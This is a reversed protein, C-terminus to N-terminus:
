RVLTFREQELPVHTGCVRGIREAISPEGWRKHSPARSRDALEHLGQCARGRGLWQVMLSDARVAMWRRQRGMVWIVGMSLVICLGIAILIINLPVGSWHSLILMAYVFLVVSVLLLRPLIYNARRMTVYRALGTALLVDLMTPEVSGGLPSPLFLGIQRRPLLSVRVEPVSIRPKIVCRLMSANYPFRAEYLIHAFADQVFLPVRGRGNHRRFHWIRPMRWHHARRVDLRSRLELWSSTPLPHESMAPGYFAELRTDLNREEGDGSEAHSREKTM